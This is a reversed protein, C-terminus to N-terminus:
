EITNAPDTGTPLKLRQRLLLILGADALQRIPVATPLRSVAGWDRGAEIPRMPPEYDCM